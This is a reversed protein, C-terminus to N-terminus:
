DEKVDGKRGMVVPVLSYHARDEHIHHCVRREMSFRMPQRHESILLLGLCTELHRGAFRICNIMLCTLEPSGHRGGGSGRTQDRGDSRSYRTVVSLQLFRSATKKWEYKLQGDDSEDSKSENRSLM